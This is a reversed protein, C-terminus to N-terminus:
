KIKALITNLGFVNKDIKINEELNFLNPFEIDVRSGFKIMGLYDGSKADDNKHVWTVLRRVFFGTLQKIKIIGYKTKILTILKVNHTSKEFDNAFHFGKDRIEQHIIKGSFPIYQIHPDFVSLFISIKTSDRKKHIKMIKGYAPSYLYNDNQIFNFITPIRYFYMLKLFILFGIFIIIYIHKKYINILFLLIIIYSIVIFPSEKFLLTNFM